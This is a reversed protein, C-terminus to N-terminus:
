HQCDYLFKLDYDSVVTGIIKYKIKRGPVKQESYLFFINVLLSQIVIPRTWIDRTNKKLDFMM